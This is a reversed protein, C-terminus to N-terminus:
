TKDFVNLVLIFFLGLIGGIVGRIDFGLVMAIFLVALVILFENRIKLKSKM